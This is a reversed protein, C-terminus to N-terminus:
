HTANNPEVAGSLTLTEGAVAGATLGTIGTVAVFASATINIPFDRTYHSEPGKGNAIIGTISNIWAGDTKVSWVITKNTADSPQVKASDLTYYFLADQDSM